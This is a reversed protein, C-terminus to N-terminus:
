FPKFHVGASRLDRWLNRRRKHKVAWEQLLKAVEDPALTSVVSMWEAVRTYDGSMVGPDPIIRGINRKIFAIGATTLPAVDAQALWELRSTSERLRSVSKLLQLLPQYTPLTERQIELLDSILTLHPAEDRASRFRRATLLSRSADPDRDALSERLWVLAKETFCEVHDAMGDDILWEVWVIDHALGDLVPSSACQTRLTYTRWQQFLESPDVTKVCSMAQKVASWDDAYRALVLQIEMWEQMTLDDTEHALDRWMVMVDYIKSGFVDFLPTSAPDYPTNGHQYSAKRYSNITRRCFLMARKLDGAERAAAILVLGKEWDTTLASEALKIEYDSDLESALMYLIQGSLSQNDILKDSLISDPQERCAKLHNFLTRKRDDQWNESIHTIMAFENFFVHGPEEALEILQDFFAVADASFLDIWLVVCQTVVAGLCIADDCIYDDLCSVQESMDRCLTQLADKDALQHEAARPLLPLLEVAIEEIDDSIQRVDLYPPEWDRDQVVYPGDEDNLEYVLTWWADLACQFIEAFREQSVAAEGDDESTMGTSWHQFVTAIDPPLRRVLETQDTVSLTQLVATLLEIQQGNTLRSFLMEVAQVSLPDTSSGINM